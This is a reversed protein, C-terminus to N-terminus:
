ELSGEKTRLIPFSREHSNMSRDSERKERGSSFTKPQKQESTKTTTTKTERSRRTHALKVNLGVFFSTYSYGIQNNKESESEMAFPVMEFPFCDGYGVNWSFSPENGPEGSKKSISSWYTGTVSDGFGATRSVSSRGSFTFMRRSM